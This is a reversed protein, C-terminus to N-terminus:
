SAMSCSPPSAHTTPIMSLSCTPGFAIGICGHQEKPKGNFKDTGPTPKCNFFFGGSIRNIVIPDIRILESEASALFYGWAYDQDGKVDEKAKHEYYGGECKVDFFGIIGIDLKGSYGKNPKTTAELEGELHLATFDLNLNLKRFEANGDEISWKSFDTGPTNVKASIAVTAGVNIMDEVLGVTGGLEM